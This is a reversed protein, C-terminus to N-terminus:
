KISMKYRTGRREREDTHFQEIVTYQSRWRQQQRETIALGFSLHLFSIGNGTDTRHEATRNDATGTGTETGTDGDYVHIIDNDSQEQAM